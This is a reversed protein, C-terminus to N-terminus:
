PRMIQGGDVNVVQGTMWASADSLLFLCTGVLDAPRGVRALPMDRITRNLISEPVVSRTADTDTPGPAIANVRINLPGLERALSQTIGNLALKAVGYFGMAM